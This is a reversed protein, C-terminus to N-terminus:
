PAIRGNRPIADDSWTTLVYVEIERLRKLNVFTRPHCELRVEEIQEVMRVEKVGSSTSAAARIETRIVETCGPRGPAIVTTM